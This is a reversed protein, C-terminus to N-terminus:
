RWDGYLQFAAWFYPHEWANLLGFWIKKELAEQQAIQLAKLKSQQGTNNEKLLEYFRRTIAVGVDQRVTWVSALVSSAGIMLFAQALGLLEDSTSTLAIGSECASLIVLSAETRLGTSIELATLDKSISTQDGAMILCSSLGDDRSIGHCAIHVVDWLEHGPRMEDILKKKTAEQPMVVLSRSFQPAIEKIALNEFIRLDDMIGDASRIHNTAPFLLCSDMLHRNKKIWWRLATASPSIIIPNREVLYKQGDYLASFPVNHLPGYPVICIGEGKSLLSQLPAIITDHLRSSLKKFKEISKLSDSSRLEKVIDNIFRLSHNLKVIQPHKEGRKLIFALAVDLEDGLYYEILIPVEKDLLEVVESAGVTKQRRIAIYDPYLPELKDWIEELRKMSNVIVSENYHHAQSGLTVDSIQRLLLAEEKLLTSNEMGPLWLPEYRLRTNLVLWKISEALAFANSRMEPDNLGLYFCCDITAEYIWRFAKILALNQREYVFSLRYSELRNLAKVLFSYAEDWKKQIRLVNGLTGYALLYIESDIVMKQASISDFINIARRLSSEAKNLLGLQCFFSGLNALAALEEHSYLLDADETISQAKNFADLAKEWDKTSVYLAGLNIFAALERSRDAKDHFVPIIEQLYTESKSYYINAQDIRGNCNEFNALEIYTAALNSRDTTADELNKISDLVKIAKEFNPIAHDKLLNRDKYALFIRGLLNYVDAKLQDPKMEKILNLSIEALSRASQIDQGLCSNDLMAMGLDAIVRASWYKAKNELEPPYQWNAWGANDLKPRVFRLICAASALDNQSRLAKDSQLMEANPHSQVYPIFVIAYMNAALLVDKASKLDGEKKEQMYVGYYRELLDAVESMEMAAFAKALDEDGTLLSLLSAQIALGGSFSRKENIYSALMPGIDKLYVTASMLDRRSIAEDAHIMLAKIAFLPDVAM